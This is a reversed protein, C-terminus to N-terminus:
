GTYAILGHMRWAERLVSTPHSLSVFPHTGVIRVDGAEVGPALCWAWEQSQQKRIVIGCVPSNGDVGGNSRGARTTGFEAQAASRWAIGRVVGLGVKVLWLEEGVSAEWAEGVGGGCREPFAAEKILTVTWSDRIIGEYASDVSREGKAYWPCVVDVGGARVGDSLVDAAPLSFLSANVLPLAVEIFPLSDM